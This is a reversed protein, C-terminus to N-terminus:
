ASFFFNIDSHHSNCKLCFLQLKSVEYASMNSGLVLGNGEQFEPTMTENSIMGYSQM